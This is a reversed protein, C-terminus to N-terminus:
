NGHGRPLRNRASFSVLNNHLGLVPKSVLHGCSAGVGEM